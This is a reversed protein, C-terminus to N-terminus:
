LVCLHTLHITAAYRPSINIGQCCIQTTPLHFAQPNGQADQPQRRAAVSGQAHRSDEKQAFGFAQVEQEQLGQASEGEAEPADCHLRSRHSQACRPQLEFLYCYM